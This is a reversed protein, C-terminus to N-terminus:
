DRKEVVLNEGGLRDVLKTLAITNNNIAEQMKESEERHQENIKAIDERHQEQTKYIYFFMAACVAVPFGFNSLINVLMEM